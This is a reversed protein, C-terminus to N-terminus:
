AFIYSPRSDASEYVRVCRLTPGTSTPLFV